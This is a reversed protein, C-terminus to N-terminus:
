FDGLSELMEQEYKTNKNKRLRPEDINYLPILNSAKQLTEIGDDHYVTYERELENNVPVWSKGKIEVLDNKINREDSFLFTGENEKLYAKEGRKIFGM